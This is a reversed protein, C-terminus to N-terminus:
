ASHKELAKNTLGKFDSITQATNMEEATVIVHYANDTMGYANPFPAKPFAPDSFVENRHLFTVPTGLSQTFDKWKQRMFLNGYTVMCLNCEYADPSTVKQIGDKIINIIGSDANYVFVMAEIM